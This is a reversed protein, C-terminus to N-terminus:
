PMPPPVSSTTELLLEGSVAGVESDAFCCVLESIADPNVLQRADLFVLIEGTAHKVAENLASAKGCSRGLIVSTISSAHLQLISATRDTSGDSVIVIQLRDQPYDLLRLNELKAPLNTEENRAAIIISVTPQIPRQLIPRCHLRVQLWLWIAYGFYAYVVVALCLWFLLKM